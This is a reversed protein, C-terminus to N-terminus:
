ARGEHKRCGRGGHSRSHNGVVAVRRSLLIRGSNRRSGHSGHAWRWQGVAVSECVGISDGGMESADSRRGRTCWRDGKTVRGNSGRITVHWVLVVCRLWRVRRWRREAVVHLMQGVINKGVPVLVVKSVVKKLEVRTILGVIRQHQGYVADDDSTVRAEELEDVAQWLSTGVRASGDDVHRAAVTELVSRSEGIGHAVDVTATQNLGHVDEAVRGASRGGAHTVDQGVEGGTM